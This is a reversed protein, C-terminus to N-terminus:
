LDCSWENISTNEFICTLISSVSELTHPTLADIIDTRKQHQRRNKMFEEFSTKDFYYNRLDSVVSQYKDEVSLQIMASLNRM